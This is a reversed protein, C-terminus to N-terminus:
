QVFDFVEEGVEAEHGDFSHNAGEIFKMNLIKINRKLYNKGDEVTTGIEKYIFGNDEAGVLIQTPIAINNLVPSQYDKRYFDWISGLDSPNYWSLWTQYSIPYDEIGPPVIELGNGSNVKSKVENLVNNFKAGLTKVMFGTKDFPALLIIKRILSAYKGESLYRVTKITGLSHGALIFKTYGLKLLYDIWATIDLHAEELLEFYSGIITGGSGNKLFETQIGTGRTQMTLYANDSQKLVDAISYIFEHSYFDSTFGHIMIIAPKELNGPQLMGSLLLGDSTTTQIIDCNQM